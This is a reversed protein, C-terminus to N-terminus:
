PVLATETNRLNKESLISNAYQNWQLPLTKVQDSPNSIAIEVVVDDENSVDVLGVSFDYSEGNVTLSSRDFKAVTNTATVSFSVDRSNSVGTASDGIVGFHENTAFHYSVSYEGGEANM